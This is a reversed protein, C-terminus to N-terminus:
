NKHAKVTEFLRGVAAPDIREALREYPKVTKPAPVAAIDSWTLSPLNLFSEIGDAIRPLVPKLLGGLMALASLAATCTQRAKAPDTKVSEWPAADNIHKNVQDALNMIERMAKGFELGEYCDALTDVSKRINELLAAGSADPNSLRGDLGSAAIRGVRSAINVVKGVIDANVKLVFDDLNLDVDEPAPGLKSAYYYRLFEPNLHKLFDAARIFTGRSKSMKEGNVTLFGHVHVRTPTTFGATMLMAPWFLTHFYLIDKGIFHHIEYEGRRWIAEFDAGTRDCWNKTAAIYGIPADMWVYFYKDETGPIKFGFYPADRSIDWDRIGQGFWEDLKRVLEPRLHGGRVWRSLEDTMASLRFYHHVSKRFVPRGGCIACTPGALRTPDYTASCSECADGYQDETGCVPCAGKIMRDPLFLGDKECFYQEIEKEYILGKKKAESYIFEALIRNEESNTTYYNDFAVHFASFDETHERHMRDILEEPTIGLARASIMVPTGHTDDACMYLCEHGRMKQFRVWIDTQIYEVLHGLHISGNAYPLASTVLIRRRDKMLM